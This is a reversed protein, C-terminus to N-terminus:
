PYHFRFGELVDIALRRILGEYTMPQTANRCDMLRNYLTNIVPCQSDKMKDLYVCRNYIGLAYNKMKELYENQDMVGRFRSSHFPLMPTNSKFIIAINAVYEELFWQRKPCKLDSAFEWLLDMTLASEIEYQFGEDEFHAEAHAEDLEKTYAWKRLNDLTFLETRDM